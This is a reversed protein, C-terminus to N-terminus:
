VVASSALGVVACIGIIVLVASIAAGLLSIALSGIIIYGIIGLFVGFAKGIIRFAFGCIKTFLAVAFFLVLLGFM